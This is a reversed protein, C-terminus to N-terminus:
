EAAQVTAGLLREKPISVWRGNNRPLAELGMPRSTPHQLAPLALAQDLDAGFDSAASGPISGVQCITAFVLWALM